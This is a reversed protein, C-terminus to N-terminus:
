GNRRNMWDNFGDVAAALGGAFGFLLAGCSWRAGFRWSSNVGAVAGLFLITETLRDEILFLFPRDAPVDVTAVAHYAM